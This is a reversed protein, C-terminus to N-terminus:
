AERRPEALPHFRGRRGLRRRLFGLGLLGTALVGLSVPEPVAAALVFNAVPALASYALADSNFV